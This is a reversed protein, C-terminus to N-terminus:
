KIYGLSKLLQITEKSLNTKKSLPSNESSAKITQILMNEYEQGITKYQPDGYLDRRENPDQVLNFLKRETISNWNTRAPGFPESMSLIYKIGKYFIMKKEIKNNSTAESIIVPEQILNKTPSPSRGQVFSPIDIKYYDLVIPFIDILSVPDKISQRKREHPYKIILPTRVYEEFFESGHCGYFVPSHEGFHEGHDSTIIIMMNEYLGSQRCYDLLRGIYQDVMHISGDYLDVCDERTYINKQRLFEVFRESDNQDAFINKRYDDVFSKETDTLKGEALYYTNAYPAHVMWTHIFFFFDKNKNNELQNILIQFQAENQFPDVSLSMSFGRSFGIEDPLKAIKASYFQVERLVEAITKVSNKLAPYENFRYEFTSWDMNVGHRSPLTGTLISM